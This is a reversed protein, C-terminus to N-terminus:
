LEGERAMRNLKDKVYKPLLEPWDYVVRPPSTHDYVTGQVCRAPGYGEAGCYCVWLPGNKPHRDVIWNGIRVEM